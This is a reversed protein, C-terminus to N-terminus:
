HTWSWVSSGNMTVVNKLKMSKISMENVAAVRRTRHRMSWCSLAIGLQRCMVHCLLCVMSIDSQQCCSFLRIDSHRDSTWLPWAHLVGVVLLREKNVLVSFKFSIGVHLYVQKDDTQRYHEHARFGVSGTSIKPLTKVGNQVKAMQRGELLINHLDDWSFGEM